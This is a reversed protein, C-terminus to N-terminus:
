RPHHVHTKFLSSRGAHTRERSREPGVQQVVLDLHILQCQHRLPVEILVHALQESWVYVEEKLLVKPNPHLLRITLVQEYNRKSFLRILTM